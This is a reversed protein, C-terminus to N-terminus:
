TADKLRDNLTGINTVFTLHDKVENFPPYEHRKAQEIFEKMEAACLAYHDKEKYSTRYPRLQNLVAFWRRWLNGDNPNNFREIIELYQKQNKDKAISRRGEDVEKLISVVALFQNRLFM